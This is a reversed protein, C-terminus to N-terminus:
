MNFEVVSDRGVVISKSCWLRGCNLICSENFSCLSKRHNIFDIELMEFVVLVFQCNVTWSGKQIAKRSGFSNMDIQADVNSCYQLSTTHEYVRMYTM